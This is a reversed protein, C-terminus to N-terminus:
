VVLDVLVEQTAFDLKVDTELVFYHQPVKYYGIKKRTGLFNQMIYIRQPKDPKNWINTVYIRGIRDSVDFQYSNDEFWKEINKATEKLLEDTLRPLKKRGYM